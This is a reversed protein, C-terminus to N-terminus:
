VEGIAGKAMPYFLLACAVMRSQEGREVLCPYLIVVDRGSVFFRYLFARGGEGADLVV